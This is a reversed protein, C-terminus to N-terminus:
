KTKFYYGRARAKGIGTVLRFAVWGFFIAILLKAITTLQKFFHVVPNLFSFANDEPIQGKENAIYQFINLYDFLNAFVELLKDIGSMLYMAALIFVGFVMKLGKIPISGGVEAQNTYTKYLNWSYLSNLFSAYKTGEAKDNTAKEMKGEVTPAGANTQAKYYMLTDNKDEDKFLITAYAKEKAKNTLNEAKNKKYDKFTEEKFKESDKNISDKLEKQGPNAMELLSEKEAYVNSEPVLVLLIGLVLIISLISVISKKLM